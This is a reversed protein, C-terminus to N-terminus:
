KVKARQKMWWFTGLGAIMVGLAMAGTFLQNRSNTSQSSLLEQETKQSSYSHFSISQRFGSRLTKLNCFRIYWADLRPSTM